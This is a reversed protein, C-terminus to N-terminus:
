QQPGKRYTADAAILYQEMKPNFRKHLRLRSLVDGLRFRETRGGGKHGSHDHRSGLRYPQEILTNCRQYGWSTAARIAERSLNFSNM